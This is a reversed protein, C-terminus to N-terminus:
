FKMALTCRKAMISCWEVASAFNVYACSSTYTDRNPMRCEACGSVAYDYAEEFQRARPFCCRFVEEDNILKPFGTGEKITKAVEVLYREPATSHIRAALDPYNLPFEQKSRLFLYDTRQHCRRRIADAASPLLKGTHMAKM